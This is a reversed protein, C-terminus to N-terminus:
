GAHHEDWSEQLSRLFEDRTMTESILGQVGPTLKDIMGPSAFDPFPVIGDNEVVTAFSDAIEARVGEAGLEAETNIPMFGGEFQIQAAEESSLYDLFAAAVNPHETKSSIAYAVSAGSAVTAPEGSATPMLFFGVDEGMESELDAAAWNGTILFASEGNAFNAQADSDATANASSPIYGEDVWEILTDTAEAAGDNEITAGDEGYVWARYDEVDGLVNLLANWIHFGGVELGGVSLPDTGSDQVQRMAEEFEELTAPAGDVGADDLISTNYFVGLVSLAGPAAYLNGTGFQQASEDSSLVELSAAPFKESWGYAEAWPGLDLILGAPVLTNMAGPNYQAIDPPDDSSMALKISKVYDNFPTQQADITVNPHHETFGDILDETPPENTYSLTLTVPEDTITTSVDNDSQNTEGGGSGGACAALALAATTGLALLAGPRRFPATKRM